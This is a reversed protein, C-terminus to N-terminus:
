EAAAEEAPADEAAPADDAAPADEAPAEAPAEEAPQEAKIPAVEADTLHALEQVAPLDGLANQLQIGAARAEEVTAGFGWSQAMVYAGYLNDPFFARFQRVDSMNFWPQDMTQCIMNAAAMYWTASIREPDEAVLSLVPGCDGTQHLAGWVTADFNEIKLEVDEGAEQQFKIDELLDIAAQGGGVGQSARWIETTIPTKGKLDFSLQVYDMTDAKIEIGIQFKKPDTVPPVAVVMYADEPLTAFFLQASLKPDETKEQYAAMVRVVEPNTEGEYQALATDIVNAFDMYPALADVDRAELAEAITEATYAQIREAKKTNPAALALAIMLVM